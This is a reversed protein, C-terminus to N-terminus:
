LNEFACKVKCWSIGEGCNREEVCDKFGQPGGDAKDFHDILFFKDISNPATILLIKGKKDSIIKIEGKIKKLYVSEIRYTDKKKVDYVEASKFQEPILVTIRENDYNSYMNKDIVAKNFSSLLIFVGFVFLARTFIEKFHKM